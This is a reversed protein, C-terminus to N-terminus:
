MVDIDIDSSVWEFFVDEEILEEDFLQKLVVPFFKMLNPYKRGCFWEFAAIMHRQQIASASTHTPIYATRTYANTTAFFPSILHHNSLSNANALSSSPPPILLLM